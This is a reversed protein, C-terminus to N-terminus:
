GDRVEDGVEEPEEGVDGVDVKQAEEESLEAGEEYIGNEESM